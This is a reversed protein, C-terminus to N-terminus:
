TVISRYLIFILVFTEVWDIPTACTKFLKWGIQLLQEAYQINTLVQAVPVRQSLRNLFYICKFGILKLPNCVKKLGRLSTGQALDALAPDWKLKIMNSAGVTARYDNHLKLIEEIEASSLKNPATWIEGACLRSATTISKSQLRVNMSIKQSGIVVTIIWQCHICRVPHFPGVTPRFSM